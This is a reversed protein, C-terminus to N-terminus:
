KIREDVNKHKKLESFLKTKVVAMFNETKRKKQLMLFIRHFNKSHMLFKKIMQM